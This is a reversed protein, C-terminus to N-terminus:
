PTSDQFVSPPTLSRVAAIFSGVSPPWCYKIASRLFLCHVRAETAGLQVASECHPEMQLEAVCSVLASHHYPVEEVMGGDDTYYLHQGHAAYM